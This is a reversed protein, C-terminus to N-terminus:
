GRQQRCPATFPMDPRRDAEQLALDFPRPDLQVLAQGAAVRHGPRVLVEQVTGAAEARLTAPLSVITEIKM